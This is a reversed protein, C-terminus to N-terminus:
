KSPVVSGNLKELYNLQSRSDCSCDFSIIDLIWCLIDIVFMDIIINQVQRVLKSERQLGCYVLCCSKTSVFLFRCSCQHKIVFLFSTIPIWYGIFAYCAVFFVFPMFFDCESGPFAFAFRSAM